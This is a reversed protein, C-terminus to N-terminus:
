TARRVQYGQRTLLRIADAIEGALQDDFDDNYHYRGARLRVRGKAVDNKLTASVLATRNLDVFRCIQAATMPGRTRLLHRVQDIKTLAKSPTQPDQPDTPLRNCPAPTPQRDLLSAWPSTTM